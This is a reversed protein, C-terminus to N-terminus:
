GGGLFLLSVQCSCPAFSVICQDLADMLQVLPPVHQM